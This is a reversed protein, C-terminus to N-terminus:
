PRNAMRLHSLADTGRPKLCLIADCCSFCLLQSLVFSFIPQLLEERDSIEVADHKNVKSEGM